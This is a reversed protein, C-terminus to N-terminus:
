EMTWDIYYCPCVIKNARRFKRKFTKIIRENKMQKNILPLRPLVNLIPAKQLTDFSKITCKAIILKDLFLVPLENDIYSM